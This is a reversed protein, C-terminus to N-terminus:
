ERNDPNHASAHVLRARHGAPIRRAPAPKKMLGLRQLRKTTSELRRSARAAISIARMDGGSLLPKRGAPWMRQKNTIQGRNYCLGDSGLQMGRMCTARDVIQSGPIFAAGFQGAVAEGGFAAAGVPSTPAVCFGRPDQILPPRCGNVGPGFGPIMPPQIGSPAFGRRPGFVSPETIMTAPEGFKIFRGIMKQQEGAVSPRATTFRSVTARAPQRFPIMATPFQPTLGTPQQGRILSRVRGAAQFGTRIAGAVPLVQAVTGITSKVLGGVAKGLVSKHVFGGENGVLLRIERFIQRISM